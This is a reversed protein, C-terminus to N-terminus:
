LLKKAVEWMKGVLYGITYAPAEGGDEVHYAELMGQKVHEAEHVISNIYDITDSHKNFLVFSIHEEINSCTVAKTDSYTMVEKMEELPEKSFGRHIMERIIYDILNHDVDYYVVVKWYQRVHFEQRIM